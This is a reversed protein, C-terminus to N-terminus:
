YLLLILISVCVCASVDKTGRFIYTSVHTNTNVVHNLRTGNLFARMYKMDRMHGYDPTATPGVFKLIEERLRTEIDPHQTLM